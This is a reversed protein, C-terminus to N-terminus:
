LTTNTYHFIVMITNSALLMAPKTLGPSLVVTGNLVSSVRANEKAVLDVGFHKQKSDFFDTIFGDLPKYFVVLRDAEPNKIVISNTNESEVAIRLM